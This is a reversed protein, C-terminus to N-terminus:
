QSDHKPRNKKACYAVVEQFKLMLKHLLAASFPIEQALLKKGASTQQFIELKVRENSSLESVTLDEGTSLDFMQRITSFDRLVLKRGVPSSYFLLASQTEAVTLKRSLEDAISATFIDPSTSEICEYFLSDESRETSKDNPKRGQLYALQLGLLILRDTQMAKVLRVTNGEKVTDGMGTSPFWLALAMLLHACGNCFNGRSM